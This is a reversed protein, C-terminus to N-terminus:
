LQLFRSPRAGTALPWLDRALERTATDMGHTQVFTCHSTNVTVGGCLSKRGGQVGEPSGEAGRGGGGVVLARDRCGRGRLVHRPQLRVAHLSQLLAAKEQCHESLPGGCRKWVQCNMKQLESYCDVTQVSWPEHM